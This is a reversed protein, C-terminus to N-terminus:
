LVESNGVLSIVRQLEKLLLRTAKIDSMADHAELEIGYYQCLTGLKYDPLDLIGMYALYHSFQMVDIARWNQYSGSGYEREGLERQRKQFFKQLFDIDFRVNYGAPYFKDYRDFKKIYKDLIRTLEFYAVDPSPYNRLEDESKGITILAKEDIFADKDPAMRMNFEEVVTGDIDILGSLQVISCKEPSLGTTEVDFFLTKIM